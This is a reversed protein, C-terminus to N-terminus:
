RQVKLATYLSRMETVEDPQVAMSSMAYALMRQWVQLFTPAPKEPQVVRQTKTTKKAAM